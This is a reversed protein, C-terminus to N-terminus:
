PLVGMLYVVTFVAVWVVDLFHWFMSLRMLRSKVATTLGKIVVQGAMAAMWILGFSVHLGHTGVLTFFSSLYASRSPGSGDIIMLRFEHIEMLVFGLGLFFTVALWILSSQRQNKHMALMALGCTASSMLLLMTEALAYPLDIVDKGTPGGAFNRALVAYTAFLAAFLVLDSMLYLWFGLAHNEAAHAEEFAEPAMGIISADPTM